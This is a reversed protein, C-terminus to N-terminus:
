VKKEVIYYPRRKVELYVKAMYEGLVAISFLQISGLFLMTLMLSSWGTVVNGRFYDVFTSVALILTLALTALSLIGSIRLPMASFSTIGNWALSLMKRYSYKSEGKLREKQVYRVEAAQFGMSAIIGRLFLNREPYCSLADLVNRGVLRFDAHQEDLPTGLKKMVTYFLDSFVRKLWGDGARNERVGTVIDKGQAFLRLMEPLVAPDHQLDADLSIICDVDNRAEMMGAMLASQHGANFSLKVGRVVPNRAAAGEIVAWTADRSGDDVFVVRSGEAVHNERRLAEVAGALVRMTEPLAAEENYCPVVLALVPLERNMVGEM